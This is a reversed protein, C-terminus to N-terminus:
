GNTKSGKWIAFADLVGEIIGGGAILSAARFTDTMNWGNKMGYVMLSGSLLSYLLKKKGSMWAKFKNM